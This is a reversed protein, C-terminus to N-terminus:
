PTPNDLEFQENAYQKSYSAANMSSCIRMIQKAENALYKTREKAQIPRRRAIANADHQRLDAWHPDRFVSAAGTRNELKHKRM